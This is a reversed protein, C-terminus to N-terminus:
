SEIYSVIVHPKVITKGDPLVLADFKIEITDIEQSTSTISYILQSIAQLDEESSKM